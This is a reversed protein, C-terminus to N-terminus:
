FCNINQTNSRIFAINQTNSGIFMKNQPMFEMLAKEKTVRLQRYLYKGHVLMQKAIM